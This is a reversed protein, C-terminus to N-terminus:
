RSDAPQPLQRNRKRVLAYVVLGAGLTLGGWLAVEPREKISFVVMWASLGLFLLPTLPWGTTRYPRPLHPERTRLVFAALVTLSTFVSLTFGIYTLLNEFTVTVIMVIALVAQLAISLWPAGRRNCYGLARVFAGDQAMAMYVRPGAMIMASVSSVLALAILLSFTRGGVSGFLARAAVAGIQEPEAALAPAPAAYFFVVNLALYLGLVIATGGLLALPLSRGPQRVEGAVYAAANWGSYAFSVFVLAVGITGATAGHGEVGFHQWSGAGFGLAATVFVAILVVKYISLATQVRAGWLVDAMHLGSLLVVLGSAALQVPLWPWVAHLYAGCAYASAAIPASFGVHLSVWGSLFGLVPHFAKRLYVYEGGVRPLMAGLEAYVAAGCLALLGGAVWIGLGVLPHRLQQAMFGTTTFIGTGIMNAVVLATAATASLPRAETM